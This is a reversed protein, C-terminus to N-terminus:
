QLQSELERRRRSYREKAERYRGAKVFGYISTGIGVLIFLVGFAAFGGGAMQAAQSTWFIGFVVAIIGGAISGLESPIHQHGHKGRVMYTRREQEWERDLSAIENQIRLSEVQESLEATRDSLEEARDALEEMQETFTINQNRRVALQTSCHNCRIFNASEPIELPAACSNCVVKELKM